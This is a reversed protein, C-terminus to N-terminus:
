SGSVVHSSILLLGLHDGGGDAPGHAFAGGIALTFASLFNVQPRLNDVSM